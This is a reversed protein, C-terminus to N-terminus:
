ERVGMNNGPLEEDVEDTSVDGICGTKRYSGMQRMNKLIAPGNVLRWNLGSNAGATIFSIAVAVGTEQRYRLKGPYGLHAICIRLGVPTVTRSMRVLM